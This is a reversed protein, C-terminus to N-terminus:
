LDEDSFDDDSNAIGAKRRKDRAMKEKRSLKKKSKIKVVNGFADVTEKKEEMVIKEPIINGVDGSISLKGEVVNWQTPCLDKMFEWNHSIIIVGGQFEKIAASLAGLSDRDLYNTPEDLVLIHPNNWMAAAIVVKVKQGGSLGRIRRHTGFEAELGFDALHQEIAKQVLPRAYAGAKAAEADDFAQLMKAFGWEELKERPVWLNDEHPRNKWKVEYEYSKKLKKRGLFTEVYRKEGEYYVQKAMQEEEEPTMKRTAKALLEKDEGYQFRWQIYQNPTKDLHQDLHHFAHQAMYAFRMNPHKWVEGETPIVEGTLCKILTSKGAGNPGMVAIRSNLSCQVSAKSISPKSAGEYTLGVNYAKLIAKDKSKIGELFGPEPFKFSFPTASLEYYVRAEPKVKVFEALNGIYQKLRRNEYHIINTCVNDLFKSDHSVILCTVTKLSNLYDELWKVNGVDLHNSPEDLLLIDAQMIMARALQLKMKWGGSLSGVAKQRMEDSFGVESLVKEVYERTPNVHAVNEDTFIFDVVSHDSLSGQIDHEVFVTRLVDKSPFGELQGNAIARM